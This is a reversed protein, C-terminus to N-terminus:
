QACSSCVPSIVSNDILAGKTEERVLAKAEVTTDIGIIIILYVVFVEFYVLIDKPLGNRCHELGSPKPSNRLLACLKTSFDFM